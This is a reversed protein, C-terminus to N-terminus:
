DRQILGNEVSEDDLVAKENVPQFMLLVLALFSSQRDM